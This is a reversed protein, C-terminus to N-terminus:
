VVKKIGAAGIPHRLFVEYLLSNWIAQGVATGLNGLMGGGLLAVTMAGSEAPAVLQAVLTGLATIYPILLNPIGKLPPWYKVAIGFILGVVTLFWNSSVVELM